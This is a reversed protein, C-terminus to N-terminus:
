ITHFEGEQRLYERTSTSVSKWEGNSIHVSESNRKERRMMRICMDGLQFGDGRLDEKM